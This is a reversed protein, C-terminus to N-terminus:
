FITLYDVVDNRHSVIVDEFNSPLYTCFRPARHRRFDCKTRPVTGPEVMSAFRGVINIAHYYAPSARRNIALISAIKRGWSDNFGIKPVTSMGLTTKSLRSYSSM